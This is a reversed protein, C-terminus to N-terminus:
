GAAPPAVPEVVAAPIALAAPVDTPTAPPLEATEIRQLAYHARAEHAQWGKLWSVYAAVVAGLGAIMTSTSTTDLGEVAPVIATALGAAATLYTAIRNPALFARLTDM